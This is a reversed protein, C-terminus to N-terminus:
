AEAGYEVITSYALAKNFLLASAKLLPAEPTWAGSFRCSEQHRGRGAELAVIQSRLPTGEEGPLRFMFNASQSGTMASGKSTEGSRRMWGAPRWPRSAYSRWWGRSPTLVHGHKRIEELTASKCFGPVDVYEGAEPEGRWAHSRFLM